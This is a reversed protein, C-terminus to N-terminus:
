LKFFKQYLKHGFNTFNEFYGTFWQFLSVGLEASKQYDEFNFIGGTRVIHFERPLNIKQLCNSATSTLNYSKDKLPLGSVGGGFKRTFFDFTNLEKPFIRSRCESYNTSTNGFNLGDFQLDTLIKLLTPIFKSDFDNSLKLIVPLNRKRKQLFNESIYELRTIFNEDLGTLDLGNHDVNPCSENLEVFDINTKEAEFLAECLAKLDQMDNGDAALSLGIPVGKQKQVQQLEDLVKRVGPNPLGMWNSSSKSVPYPVFPHLIWNRYNGFRPKPTVTGALFAGASQRCALEYGKGSKFMGAANFLPSRFEIGWFTRKLESPLQIQEPKENVLRNLFFKRAYSYVFCSAYPYNHVLFKRIPIDIKALLETFTM